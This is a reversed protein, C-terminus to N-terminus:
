RARHLSWTVVGMIRLESLESVVIPPYSPNEACLMVGSPTIRLRKVTVEADVAAIVIDGDRPEGALDVVLIDRDYLGAGVMSDGAVDVFWTAAPDQVLLASVDLDESAYDQAPSPFGAAARELARRIPAPLTVHEAPYIATAHM